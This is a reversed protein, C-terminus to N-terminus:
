EIREVKLIKGTDQELACMVKGVTEDPLVPCFQNLGTGGNCLWGTRSVGACREGWVRTGDRGSEAPLQRYIHGAHLQLALVVGSRVSTGGSGPPRKSEQLKGKEATGTCITYRKLEFRRWLLWQVYEKLARAAM